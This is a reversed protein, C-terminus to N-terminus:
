NGISIEFNTGNQENERNFYEKIIDDYLPSYSADTEEILHRMSQIYTIQADTLQISNAGGTPYMLNNSSNEHNLGMSHGIEHTLVQCIINLEGFEFSEPYINIIKDEYGSDGYVQGRSHRNYRIKTDYNKSDNTFIVVREVLHENWYHESFSIAENLKKLDDKPFSEKDVYLKITGESNFASGNLVNAKNKDFNADNTEFSQYLLALMSSTKNTVHHTYSYYDFLVFFMMLSTIMMVFGLYQKFEINKM